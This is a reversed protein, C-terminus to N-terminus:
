DRKRRFSWKRKYNESKLKGGTFIDFYSTRLNGLRKFDQQIIDVQNMLNNVFEKVETPDESNLDQSKKESELLFSNLCEISCFLIPIPETDDTLVKLPKRCVSNNCEITQIVMIIM